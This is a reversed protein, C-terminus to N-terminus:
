TRRPLPCSRRTLSWKAPAPDPVLFHYGSDMLPIVFAVVLAAVIIGAFKWREQNRPTAGIWYGIKFDSILAGSTLVRHLGACGVILAIFM